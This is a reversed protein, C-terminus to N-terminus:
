ESLEKISLFNEVNRTDVIIAVSNKYLSKFKQIGKLHAKRGSKVEIGFLQTKTKLVYDVEYDGERWYYLDCGEFELLKAGIVSEFLRGYWEPTDDELGEARLGQSLATNLPIIKPSSLRKKILSGSYKHLTRLLFAGEFLELYHKIASVNGSEQLQGLLKQLSIEHGPISMVLEFCQRFLAPKYVKSIELLDQTIVPEIIADRIFRKWRKPDKILHAGGPYGGFVVFDRLTWGFCEKCEHYTWHPVYTKEYRGLLSETLGNQIKLSASGLLVIKLPQSLRDRDFLVKIVRSWDKIKQVEDIV